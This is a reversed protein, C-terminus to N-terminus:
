CNKEIKKSSSNNIKHNVIKMSVDIVEIDWYSSKINQVM